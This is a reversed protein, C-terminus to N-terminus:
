PKYATINKIQRGTLRACDLVVFKPTREIFKGVITEGNRLAVRVRTGRDFNTHPCKM